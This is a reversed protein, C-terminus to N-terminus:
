LHSGFDSAKRGKETYAGYELYSLLSNLGVADDINVSFMESYITRYVLDM